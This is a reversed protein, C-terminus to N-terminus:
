VGEHQTCGMRECVNLGKGRCKEHASELAAARTAAPSGSIVHWRTPSMSYGYANCVWHGGPSHAMSPDAALMVWLASIAGITRSM